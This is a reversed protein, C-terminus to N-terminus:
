ESVKKFKSTDNMHLSITSVTNTNTIRRLFNILSKNQVFIQRFQNQTLYDWPHWHIYAFLLLPHLRASSYFTPFPFDQRALCISGSRWALQVAQYAKGSTPVLPRTVGCFTFETRLIASQFTVKSGKKALFPIHDWSNVKEVLCIAAM